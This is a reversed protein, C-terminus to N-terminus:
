KPLFKSTLFSGGAQGLGGSLGLLLEQLFSRSKQKPVLARTQQGLINQLNSFIQGPIQSRLQERMSALNETLGAGAQGLAQQFGSSSLGGVGAFREAIGPVIEEEFQRKYPAAFRDFSESDGSLLESLYNGGQQGLGGFLSSLMNFIQEQQPNLTSVESYGKVM